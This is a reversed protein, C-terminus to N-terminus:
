GHRESGLHLGEDTFENSRPSESRRCIRDMAREQEQAVCPRDIGTVNLIQPVIDGYTQRLEIGSLALRPIGVFHFRPKM